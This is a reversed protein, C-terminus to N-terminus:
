AYAGSDLDVALGPMAAKCPEALSWPKCSLSPLKLAETQGPDSEDRLSPGSALSIIIHDTILHLHRPVVAHQVGHAVARRPAHGGPHGRAHGGGAHRGGTRM